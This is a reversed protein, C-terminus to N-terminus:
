GNTMQQCTPKCALLSAVKLGESSYCSQCAMWYEPPYRTDGEAGLPRSLRDKVM